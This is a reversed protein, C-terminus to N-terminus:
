FHFLTSFRLNTSDLFLRIFHILLFNKRRKQSPFSVNDFDKLHLILPTYSQPCLVVMLGSLNLGEIILCVAVMIMKIKDQNNNSLLNQPLLANSSRYLSIANFFWPICCLLHSDLLLAIACKMQNQTSSNWLVILRIYYSLWSVVKGWRYTYGRQHSFATM